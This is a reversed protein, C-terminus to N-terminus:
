ALCVRFDEGEIGFAEKALQIAEDEGIAVVRGMPPQALTESSERAPVINWLKRAGHLLQMHVDHECCSDDSDNWAALTLKEMVSSAVDVADTGAPCTVTAETVRGSHRDRIEVSWTDMIPRLDIGGISAPIDGFPTVAVFRQVGTGDFRQHKNSM